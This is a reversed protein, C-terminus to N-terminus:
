TLIKTTWCMWEKLTGASMLLQWQAAQGGAMKVLALAALNRATSHYTSWADLAPCSWGCLFLSQEQKCLAWAVPIAAWAQKSLPCWPVLWGELWLVCWDGRMQRLDRQTSKLVQVQVGGVPLNGWACQWCPQFGGPGAGQTSPPCTGDWMARFSWSM